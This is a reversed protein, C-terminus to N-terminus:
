PQEEEEDTGSPKVDVAKSSGHVPYGEGMAAVEQDIFKLWPTTYFGTGILLSCVTVAIIREKRVPHRLSSVPQVSRKPTALFIRQFAWLLFAAALVNGMLIFVALLWGREEITGEVLLHAADFGPTGPMVMTSLVSVLFLLAITANTDFLGGLRPLYATRTREYILGVSFLMGSTALGYAASLLISGELGYDNFCFLGIVLMGTHSIVAFALLRRINIQMLALLAGYFISIVALTLVFDSWVEAVGPVIPLIFRIVAYIGLKLGVLFIAASAVTGQEALLPLWGHFPFLPMRIAFGYFLLIFILIEDHLYANNQKLTLWDFTLPHESDILGFALLLFGTLTMLLGSIWYQLFRDLVWRKNQGTGAHLTLVSVPLLELVSWLWFQMINLAAFAGIMIGEYGLLCAIFLRDSAHRTILTYVLAMLALIAALPIFLINAGDVGVCYTMGAFEVREFLQIGNADPDFVILLYLALLVNLLAGAFAWLRARSGSSSILVAIVTLLPILTLATLLPFGASEHWFSVYNDM